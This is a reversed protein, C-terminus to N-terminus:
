ALRVNIKAEELRRPINSKGLDTKAFTVLSATGNKPADDTITLAIEGRADRVSLQETHLAIDPVGAYMIPVTLSFSVSAPFNSLITRVAIAVVNSDGERVPKWEHAVRGVPAPQQATVTPAALACLACLSCLASLLCLTRWTRWRARRRSASDM